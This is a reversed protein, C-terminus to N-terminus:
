NIAVRSIYNKGDLKMRLFYLGSPLDKIQFSDKLSQQIEKELVVQGLENILQIRGEEVRKELHINLIDSTPNPYVQVINGLNGFGPFDISRIGSYEFSGDLDWM